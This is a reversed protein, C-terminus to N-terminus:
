REGIRAGATCGVGVIKTGGVTSLSSEFQLCVCAAARQKKDNGAGGADEEGVKTTQLVAEVTHENRKRTGNKRTRAGTLRLQQFPDLGTVSHTPVDLAQAM